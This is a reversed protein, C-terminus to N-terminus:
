ATTPAVDPSHPQQWRSLLERGFAIAPREVLLYSASAIILSAVLVAAAWTWGVRIRHFMLIVPYHLLYLSYSIAGLWRLPFAFHRRRMALLVLFIVPAPLYSAIMSLSTWEGAAAVRPDPFGIGLGVTFVAACGCLLAAVSTWSCERVTARYMATGVFALAVMALRAVPLKHHVVPQALAMALIAGLAAWGCLISRRNAGFAFLVSCAIYFLMELSLTWYLHIAHPIGVYEQFMTLNVLILKTWHRADWESLPYNGDARMLVVVLLSTWYLPYLRFLRNLWFRGLSGARELSQPIIFGSVLFFLAVGTRGANFWRMSGDFWGAFLREALHQVIVITSALGRAVDLFELRLAGSATRQPLAISTVDRM